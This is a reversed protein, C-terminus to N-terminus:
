QAPVNVITNVMTVSAILSLARGDLTVVNVNGATSFSVEETGAIITGKMTGGGSPNITAATSVQWFVNKAQAGNILTVSRPVAAEGVTLTSAMQFVWVANQNGQGDLTLDGGQILFAGSQATWIGPELTLGGLNDNGPDLGGPLAAPSLAIFAEEAALRAETAIDFTVATGEQPCAVTPPPPATFIGGNVQGENLPTVTYSCDPDSANVFGTVLTSAATTGIDGNIRTLLGENTIGANGGFSGFPTAAGLDPGQLCDGTAPGVTFSWVFDVEMINAPVALDKVGNEGGKVRATYETGDVLDDQPTFTAIDNVGDLVVSEATVTNLPNDAEVVTFTVANITDPDMQLGSSVDFTANITANPCVGVDADDPTVSIVTIDAPPIAVDSETTFTWVYDSAAPLPAQNGALANGALDTAATTITATYTTGPELETGAPTLSFTVTRSGVSYSVAGDPSDCPADCELTFTGATTMSIPAMDETFTAAINTNVQVDPTPGPDTTEPQTVTVRPRTTDPTVGTRFTWVFPNAMTLGTALSEGATVTATYLTDQELTTAAALTFTAVESTADLAVTGAPNTCPAECTVTFSADGTLPAMPETFDATIVTNNVAVGTANNVPAVATVRPRTNTTFSWVFPAALTLGTGLSEAGTVTATYLTDENLETGADLAFTAVTNSADLSVTGVADPCPDACTVTFSASGSIAAMPQNFTATVGPDDLPVATANNAPTVATVQPRANTTFSWVFPAALTLGTGLSAAGTVTATYLTDEELEAGAGLAFTAVTNAANLSVTGVPSTCPAECTVTFSASGAIAAMPENFTATIDPDDLPVSTANDVPTVVTVTPRLAADGDSGLIEDRNGDGGCSALFVLPLILSCLMHTQHKHVKM